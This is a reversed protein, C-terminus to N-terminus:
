VSGPVHIRKKSLLLHSRGYYKALTDRSACFFIFELIAVSLDAFAVPEPSNLRYCLYSFAVAVLMNSYFLYHRYHIEILLSFATINEELSQFDLSPVSLGTLKHLTDVLAWRIASITMGLAIACATLYLFGGITPSTPGAVTLLNRAPESVYSLGFFATSGPVLYAILPGFNDNNVTQM